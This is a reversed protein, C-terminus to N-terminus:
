YYVQEFYDEDITVLTEDGYKKCSLSNDIFFLPIDNYNAMKIIESLETDSFFIKANVFSLFKVTRIYGFVEILNLIKGFIDSRPQEVSVSFFKLVDEYSKEGCSEFIISEESLGSLVFSYLESILAALEFRKEMDKDFSLSLTRVVKTNIAKTLYDSDFYDIFTFYDKDCIMEKNGDFFAVERKNDCIGKLCKVVDSFFRRNNTEIALIRNENFSFSSFRELNYFYANM